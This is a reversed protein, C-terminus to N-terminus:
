LLVQQPDLDKTEKESLRSQLLALMEFSISAAPHRGAFISHIPSIEIMRHTITSEDSALPIRPRVGDFYLLPYSGWIPVYEPKGFHAGKSCTVIFAITPGFAFSTAEGSGGL